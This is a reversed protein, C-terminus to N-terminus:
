TTDFLQPGADSRTGRQCYRFIIGTRDVFLGYLHGYLHRCLGLGLPRVFYGNHRALLCCREFVRLRADQGQNRWESNESTISDLM